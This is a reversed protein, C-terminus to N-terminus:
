ASFARASMATGAKDQPEAAPAGRCAIVVGAVIASAAALLQLSLRESVFLSAFFIAVIPQIFM